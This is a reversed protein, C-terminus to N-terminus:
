YKPYALFVPVGYQSELLVWLIIGVYLGIVLSPIIGDMIKVTALIM